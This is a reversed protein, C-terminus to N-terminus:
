QRQLYPSQAFAQDIGELAGDVSSKTLVGDVAGAWLLPVRKTSTNGHKIDLMVVLLTGTEYSFTVANAPYGWGWDAGYGVPWGPWFSWGGWWGSYAVGTNSQELVVTLLVVDPREATVDTIERWGFALFGDRIRGLIQDDAEHGIVDAGQARAPHIITDPLAFTRAERLPAQSDVLTTVSSLQSFSMIQDPYCGTTAVACFLISTLLTLVVRM